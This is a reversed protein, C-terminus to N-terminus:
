TQVIMRRIPATSTLPRPGGNKAIDTQVKKELKADLQDYVLYITLCQKIRCSLFELVEVAEQKQLTKVYNALLTFRKFERTIYMDGLCLNPIPSFMDISVLHKAEELTM